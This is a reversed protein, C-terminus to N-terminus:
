KVERSFYIPIFRICSAGIRLSRYSTFLFLLFLLVVSVHHFLSTQSSYIQYTLVSCVFALLLAVAFNFFFSLWSMWFYFHRYPAGEVVEKTTVLDTFEYFIMGVFEVLLEM